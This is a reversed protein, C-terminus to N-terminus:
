RISGALLNDGQCVYTHAYRITDYGWPCRSTVEGSPVVCRSSGSPVTSTSWSGALAAPPILPSTDAAPLPAAGGDVPPPLICGFSTTAAALAEDDEEGLRQYCHFLKIM